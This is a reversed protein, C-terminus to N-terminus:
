LSLFFQMILIAPKFLWGYEWNQLWVILKQIPNIALEENLTEIIANGTATFTYPYNVKGDSAAFAGEHIKFKYETGHDLTKDLKLEITTNSGSFSAKIDGKTFVAINDADENTGVSIVTGTGVTKKGTGRLVIKVTDVYDNKWDGNVASVSVISYGFYETDAAFAIVPITFVVTLALVFSLIKRMTKSM